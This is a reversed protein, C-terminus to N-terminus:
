VNERENVYRGDMAYEAREMRDLWELDALAIDMFHDTDADAKDATAVRLSQRHCEAAFDPSRSDCRMQMRASVNSM